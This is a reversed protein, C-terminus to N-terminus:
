LLFNILGVSNGMDGHNKKNETSLKWWSDITWHVILERTPPVANGDIIGEEIMCENWMWRIHYKLPQKNIGVDLPQCLSTCGWPIHEVKVGLDPNRNMISALMHCRYSDLALLPVSGEPAMAVHPALVENVDVWMIMCTEDMLVNESM